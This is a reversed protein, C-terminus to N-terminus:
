GLFVRERHIKLYDATVADMHCIRMRDDLGHGLPDVINKSFVIKGGDNPNFTILGTDFVKDLNPTLLLGNHPDLREANSAMYWPKIHSAILIHSDPYGTVSCHGGWLEILHRRYRGQGLRAQILATRQTEALRTDAEIEKCVRVDLPLENQISQLYQRYKSLASSYMRNGDANLKQFAPSGRLAADFADFAEIQSEDPVPGLETRSLRGYIAGAYHKITSNVINQTAMWEVFGNSM